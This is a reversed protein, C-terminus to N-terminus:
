LGQKKYLAHYVGQRALLQEPDGQEVMKGADLVLIHGALQAVAIRHSIILTTRGQIVKAITQLISKATQTDVASLCDDLVLIRPDRVFARAIALRQKQGGSLTVGKEGLVTQMQDPFQQITAYIAAQQAATAIQAPTAQAAGLAINNQITDAFLFVEQPVYGLQQRLWPVAYDQIPVGDITITGEDADYLRAILHAITTKGTGTTGVIALSQGAAVQFSVKQLAQLGNDPYALSVEHFALHGQIPRELAKQSVIPNKAQLFTNIRQQSAAARQVLHTIWSVSLTPWSLLDLYMIFAAISGPTMTGQIVEQGGVFVVLVIGLGIIGIVAPFFFANIATLRLARAQYAQCAQAFEKTFAKERAFAQLVRIGSFAEQALTTLRSLQGQIAQSRRHMFTSVYYTVLALFPIPVAAYLTLRANILWMYPVLLLFMTATGIAHMISPGLYMGVRDVDESIRAMLDGTSHRRYFSLPLTQYHQYIENKLAYEIRKGMGMFHRCALFAFFSKLMALLFVGGVYFFLGQALRQDIMSLESKSVALQYAGISAQVLDFAHKILRPTLIVLANSILITITGWLLASKHQALYKNLYRLAKM